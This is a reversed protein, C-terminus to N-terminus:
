TGARLDAIIPDELDLYDRLNMRIAKEHSGARFTIEEQEQLSFDAYTNMQFISGFPPEAGLDCDTILPRVESERALRVERGIVSSAKDLDVRYPAPIVILHCEGGDTVIVTKAFQYGSVHEAAAEEQATYALEHHDVEFDIGMNRLFDEIM